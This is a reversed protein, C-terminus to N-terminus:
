LSAYFVTLGFIYLLLRSHQVCAVVLLPSGSSGHTFNRYGVNITFLIATKLRVENWSSNKGLLSVLMTELKPITQM